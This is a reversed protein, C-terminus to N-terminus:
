ALGWIKIGIKCYYALAGILIPWDQGSRCCPLLQHHSLEFYMARQEVCYHEYLVIQDHCHPRFVGVRTEFALIHAATLIAPVHFSELVHITYFHLIVSRDNVDQRM